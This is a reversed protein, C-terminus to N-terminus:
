QTSGERPTRGVTAIDGDAVAELMEILGDVATKPLHVTAGNPLTFRRPRRRLVVLADPALDPRRTAEDEGRTISRM